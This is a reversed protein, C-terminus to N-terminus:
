KQHELAGSGAERGFSRRYAVQREAPTRGLAFYLPHPAVLEDPRGLANVGFSSWRYEDPRNVLGARVPNLEIYRMCALLHRGARVPSAEFEPAWLSAEREFMGATAEDTMGAVFRAHREFLADVLMATGGANSETLLLHVHNGMLVYAHIACEFRSGYEALLRLFALRDQDAFFGPSRDRSRRIVHLAVGRPHTEPPWPM